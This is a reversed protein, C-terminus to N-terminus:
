PSGKLIGNWDNVAKSSHWGCSQLSYSIAIPLLERQSMGLGPQHLNLQSQDGVTSHALEAEMQVNMEINRILLHSQEKSM